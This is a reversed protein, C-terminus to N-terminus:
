AVSDGAMELGYGSMNKTCSFSVDLVIQITDRNSFTFWVPVYIVCVSGCM